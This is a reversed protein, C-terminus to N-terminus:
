RTRYRGAEDGLHPMQQANGRRPCDPDTCDKCCVPFDGDICCLLYDCEDCCCEVGPYEGNGPCDQGGNGPILSTGTIDVIM